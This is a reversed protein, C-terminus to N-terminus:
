YETNKYMAKYEYMLLGIEELSQIIISVVLSQIKIETRIVMVKM